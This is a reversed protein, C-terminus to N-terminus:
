RDPAAPAPSARPPPAAPGSRRLSLAVGPLLVAVLCWSAVVDLPWHYERWVLGLGCAAVLVAALVVALRRVWPRTACGAVLVAAGGYAVASTAAHGSPYFGAYSTVVDVTPGPRAFAEKLPVVLAPVLAMAVGAAFAARRQGRHVAYAVAAVLFPVAVLGNGLDALFEGFGAPPAHRGMGEALAEDSDVLPGGAGVQWSIVALLAAACWPVM